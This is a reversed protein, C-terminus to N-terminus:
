ANVNADTAVGVAGFVLLGSLVYNILRMEPDAHFLVVFVIEFFVTSVAAFFIPTFNDRRKTEARIRKCVRSRTTWRKPSAVCAM